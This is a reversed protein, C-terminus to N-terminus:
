SSSEGNLEADKPVPFHKTLYYSSASSPYHGVESFCRAATLTGAQLYRIEAAQM